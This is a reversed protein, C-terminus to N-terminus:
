ISIINSKIINKGFNNEVYINAKGLLFTKMRLYCNKAIM